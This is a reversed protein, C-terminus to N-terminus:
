ASSVRGCFTKCTRTPIAASTARIDPGQGRSRQAGDSNENRRCEFGPKLGKNVSRLTKDTAGLEARIHLSLLFADQVHDRVRAVVTCRWLGHM